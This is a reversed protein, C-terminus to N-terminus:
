RALSGGSLVNAALLILILIGLAIRYFGFPM